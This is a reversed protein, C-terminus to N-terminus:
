IFIRIKADENIGDDMGVQVDKGPMKLGKREKVAETVAIRWKEVEDPTLFDEIVVFGNTQFYQIQDQTLECKM